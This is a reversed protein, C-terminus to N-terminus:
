RQYAYSVKFFLSRGARVLTNDPLLVRDDGYGVFLVTQWNLKYSYLVSGLFSGGHDGGGTEVDDYQTIVRLLSKASFSYQARLREITETFVRGGDADLWERNASLQLDLRDHPRVTAAVSLSTGDGVRGSSFDISEGTRGQFAIRPLRRNPDFQVQWNVYTQEVLENGVRVQEQPYLAVFFNLNKVGFGSVGITGQRFITDGDQNTQLDASVFPRVFRIKGKEPFYRKGLEGYGERYGVQPIFGLDARFDDGIDRVNFFWDHTPKLHGWSATFAHSQLREGNWASSLDLRDPNETDSYLLQATIADSGTPRWQADPGLVRNHGGGSIERDTLVAGVFSSGVDHRVRAITAYSKFDQLAFGSGLPGPIITLGGGRDETTLVTYGTSGIKGTVRAGARPSTITRTYAVQLPTDFLDFGELFFPRKEAFFVAFRRNTTIQPADAEIQSFDPNITLDVANNATPNWKVDLGADGDTDGQELSSGLGARPAANSEATIYPAAVLHGAEPLGTLGTLPHTNCVLCNSGRPLPASHFAYRFDRPYNRWVLINWTQPDGSNYRLSSFPIRFEASWGKDDIRAATDYFFDPSFDESQNADNFIGDAQVGRPNVRLEMASRKDNRTDLFVAINDDTGIVGDRDVFPARIKKPDPDDCRVGIYFYRNDYTIYAVTRIKAPINNSPSTEYFKDIVAAQQWAADSLDGDVTIPANTRPVNMPAPPPPTTPAPAPAQAVAVVAAFCLVVLANLSRFVM